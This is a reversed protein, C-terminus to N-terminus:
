ENECWWFSEIRNKKILFLRAIVFIFWFFNHLVFFLFCFVFFSFFMSFFSFYFFFSFQLLNDYAFVFFWLILFFNLFCFNFSWFFFDFDFDIRKIILMEYRNETSWQLIFFGSDADNILLMENVKKFQDNRLKNIRRSAAVDLRKRQKLWIKDTDHNVNKTEYVNKITVNSAPNNIVHFFCIKKIIDAKQRKSQSSLTSRKMSLIIIINVFTINFRDYPFYIQM